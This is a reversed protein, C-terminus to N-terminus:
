LTYFTFKKLFEFMELYNFIPLFKRLVNHCIHIVGVNSELLYLDKTHIILM